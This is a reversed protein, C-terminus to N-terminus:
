VPFAFGPRDLESMSNEGVNFNQGTFLLIVEAGKHQEQPDVSHPRGGFTRNKQSGFTQTKGPNTEQQDFNNQLYESPQPLRLIHAPRPHPPRFATEGPDQFIIQSNVVCAFLPEKKGIKPTAILNGWSPCGREM